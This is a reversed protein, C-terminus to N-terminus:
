KAEGGAAAAKEARLQRAKKGKPRPKHPELGAIVRFSNMLAIKKAKIQLKRERAAKTQEIRRKHDEVRQISRHQLRKKYRSRRPGGGASILCVVILIM